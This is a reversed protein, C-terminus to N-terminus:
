VHEPAKMVVKLSFQGTKNRQKDKDIDSVSASAFKKEPRVEVPLNIASVSEVRDSSSITTIINNIRNVTDRYNNYTVPIRGTVVAVHQIESPSTVNTPVYKTEEDHRGSSRNRKNEDLQRTTWEIKDIYIRGIEPKSVLKSLALMFDLPTVRSNEEIQDVMSVAMDM